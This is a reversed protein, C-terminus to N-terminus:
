KLVESALLIFQIASFVIQAAIYSPKARVYCSYALSATSIVCGALIIM